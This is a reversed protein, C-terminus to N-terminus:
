EYKNQFDQADCVLQIQYFDSTIIVNLNGLFKRHVCKISRLQLDIFKLIRKSILSIENLVM